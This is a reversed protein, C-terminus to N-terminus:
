KKTKKKTVKLVGNVYVSDYIYGEKLEKKPAPADSEKKEKTKEAKKRSVQLVGNVYTSDYIYNDKKAKPKEEKKHRSTDEFKAAGEGAGAVSTAPDVKKEKKEEKKEETTTKPAQVAAASGSPTYVVDAVSRQSKKGKVPGMFKITILDRAKRIVVMNLNEARENMYKKFESNDYYSYIEVDWHKGKLSKMWNTLKVDNSDAVDTAMGRYYLHLTDKQSYLGGCLGFLVTFVCARAIIFVSKM